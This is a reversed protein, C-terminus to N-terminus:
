LVRSLRLSRISSGSLLGKQENFDALLRIDEISLILAADFGM